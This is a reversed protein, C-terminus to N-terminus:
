RLAADGGAPLVGRDQRQAPHRPRCSRFKPARGYGAGIWRADGGAAFRPVYPETAPAAQRGSAASEAEADRKAQIAARARESRQRLLAMLEAGTPPAEEVEPEEGAAQEDVEETSEYAPAFGADAPPPVAAEPRSSLSAPSLGRSTAPLALEARPASSAEGMTRAGYRASADPYRTAVTAALRQIRTARPHDNAM